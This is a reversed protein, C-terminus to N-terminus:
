FYNTLYLFTILRVDYTNEEDNEDDIDGVGSWEIDSM